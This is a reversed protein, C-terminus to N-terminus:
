SMGSSGLVDGSSRAGAGVGAGKGTGGSASISAAAAGRSGCSKRAKRRMARFGFLRKTTQRPPPDM